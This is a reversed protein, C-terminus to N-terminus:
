VQEPLKFLYYPYYIGNVRYELKYLISEKIETVQAYEYINTQSSEYATNVVLFPCKLRVLGLKKSIILLSSNDIYIFASM